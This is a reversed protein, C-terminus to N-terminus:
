RAKGGRLPARGQAPIEAQRLRAAQGGSRRKQKVPRAGVGATEWWMCGDCLYWAAQAGHLTVLSYRAGGCSRCRAWAVFDTSPVMRPQPPPLPDPPTHYEAEWVQGVRRFTLEGTEIATLEAKLREALSSPLPVSGDVVDYLFRVDVDCMSAILTIPARRSVDAEHHHIM